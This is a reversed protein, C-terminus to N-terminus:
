VDVYSRDINGPLGEQFQQQIRSMRYEEDKVTEEYDPDVETVQKKLAEKLLTYLYLEDPLEINFDIWRERYRRHIELM